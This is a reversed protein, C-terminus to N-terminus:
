TSSLDRESSVPRDYRRGYLRQEVGKGLKSSTSSSSTQGGVEVEEAGGGCHTRWRVGRLPCTIDHKM